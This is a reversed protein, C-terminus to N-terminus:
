EAGKWAWERWGQLMPFYLGLRIPNAQMRAMAEAYAELQGRYRQRERDLFAELDAGAHLGTKYDIIWRIGDADIFSRDIVVHRLVGDLCLSLPLESRAQHHRDSLIWRGRGDALTQRLATIVREAAQELDAGALGEGALLQRAAPLLTRVDIDLRGPLSELMRHVVVGISRVRDGAWDFEPLTRSGPGPPALPGPIDRSPAPCVWDPALVHRVPPPMAPSAPGGQAPTRPAPDANGAAAEFRTAVLPWLCHLLSNVPPKGPGGSPDVPVHGLLYLRQRARTAAVYLLRANELGQKELELRRIYAAIDGYRDEGAAKIPGLLLEAESDEGTQELWYLLSPDQHRGPRGLGPLIVHDFELGKAGHMTMLQLGEGAESEAEAYLCALHSELVQLADVDGGRELGELLRLYTEADEIAASDDVAAAGGLALWCGEVWTRLERRGRGALAAELVPLVRDLRQRGDESLSAALGSQRLCDIIALRPRDACLAHLDRLSLGCFPARLLALWSIRDGPHLLARTLVRLDNVVPRTALGDIRPANFALGAGRLERVIGPLHGRGRVLIAIRERAQRDAAQLEQVIRLVQRAEGPDDRGIFPIFRVAEDPLPDHWAQSPAYRVAGLSRDDTSPLIRPFGENVWDILGQRSRFNVRLQLFEPHLDAIGQAKVRLFLGVEAERFRYISQMPDGVLFLSRGDDPTWGSLLRELLLFQNISTDQFEDVLLHRIQYDLKLLLDSPREGSGLAQLAALSVEAFDVEGRAQFVLKLEAVAHRLLISLADLLRWEAESYAAAPLQGLGALLRQLRPARSLRELLAQMREKADRDTAPFGENRTWRRRWEGKGTLLWAGLVRWRSLEGPTAGPLTRLDGLQALPADAALRGAALRALELLEDRCEAPMASALQALHRRVIGALVAEAEERLRADAPLLHRLWQDRRALMGAILGQLLSLRNDLHGLLLAIAGAPQGEEDVRELTNLAAELYLPWPDEITAPRAGFQSLLPMQGSLGAALADFTLIRLRAPNEDLRWGLRRDRERARRALTWAQREHTSSPATDGRAAALADLIRQRMEGAAKRTFTIAVIAEPTEVQALLNLYRLTLLGTKGAGAPAQVIFSADPRLARQRQEHDAPLGEGTNTDIM